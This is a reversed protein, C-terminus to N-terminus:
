KGFDDEKDVMADDDDDFLFMSSGSSPDSPVGFEEYRNTFRNSNKLPKQNWDDDENIM